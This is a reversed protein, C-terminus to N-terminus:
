EEGTLENAKTSLAQLKTVLDQFEKGRKEIEKIYIEIDENIKELVAKSDQDSFLGNAFSSIVTNSEKIEVKAFVGAGLPLLASKGKELNSIAEKAMMLDQLVGEMQQINSQMQKAQYEYMQMEYSLKHLEEDSM